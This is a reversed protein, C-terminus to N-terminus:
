GQGPTEQVAGVTGPSVSRDRQRMLSLWSRSCLKSGLGGGGVREARRDGQCTKVGRIRLDRTSAETGKM